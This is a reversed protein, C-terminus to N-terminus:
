PDYVAIDHQQRSQARAPRSRVVGRPPPAANGLRRALLAAARATRSQAGRGRRLPPVPLTALPAPFWRRQEKRRGRGERQSAPQSAPQSAQTSAQTSAARERQPRGGAHSARTIPPRRQTTHALRGSSEDISRSRTTTLEPRAAPATALPSLRMM